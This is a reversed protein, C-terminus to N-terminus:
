EWYVLRGDMWFFSRCMVLLVLFIFFIVLVVLILEFGFRFFFLEFNFFLVGYGSSNGLFIIRFSFGIVLRKEM